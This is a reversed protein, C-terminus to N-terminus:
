PNIKLNKALDTMKDENLDLDEDEDISNHFQQAKLAINMDKKQSSSKFLVDAEFTQFSGLLDNEKLINLDKSEEIAIIKPIFRDPM